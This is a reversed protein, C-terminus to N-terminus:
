IEKEEKCKINSRRNNAQEKATAWRCNSPEYNGDNDIRDISLNDSYGHAIAWDSFSQFSDQWEPCVSISRAGYKYYNNDSTNSCRSKMSSWIRFLRSDTMGHTLHVEVNREAAFCGCSKIDGSVLHRAGVIKQQGCDCLCLWHAHRSSDNEARSIVTLRGFRHGLLDTAKRPM